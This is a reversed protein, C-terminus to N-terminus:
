AAEAVRQAADPMAGLIKARGPLVGHRCPRVVRTGSYSTPTPQKSCSGPPGCRDMWSSAARGLAVPSLCPRPCPRPCTPDSVAEATRLIDQRGVHSNTDPPHSLSLSLTSTLVDNVSHLDPALASHVLTPPPAVPVCSRHLPCVCPSVRVISRTGPEMFRGSASSCLGRPM